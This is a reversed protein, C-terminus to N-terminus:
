PYSYPTPRGGYVNSLPTNATTSRGIQPNLSGGISAGTPGVNFYAHIMGSMKITSGTPPLTGM